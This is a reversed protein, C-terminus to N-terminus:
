IERIRIDLESDQSYLNVLRGRPYKTLAWSIVQSNFLNKNGTFTNGDKSWCDLLEGIFKSSAELNHFPKMSTYSTIGRRETFSVM